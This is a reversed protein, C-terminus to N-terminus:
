FTIVQKPQRGLKGLAKDLAVPFEEFPVLETEYKLKGDRALGLLYDIMERCEKVKGMSLWSQLWFGRLALDKFIFSTTSVTIPKKSMGGYTVMTGGERLYKLVLSAANGGVCNFGLAPEPLNGLLSKVNKVNLQSESFVEDAGLAKLQERAEDSGARDRILNITSIGRLRALQIVCQGVISTAGNQVVSDGSNLNVFDELMRLATLPNVTITAAYEMPCEKDIKHWVSEEKVVYTQWTGSSPPSPIVWDGPSFGNVNSGVAYVEGVGEYGGVAPVPPRVPYVGEIRNIDSPNIPAAIMKVCVDNEKVEVPPLNVLRTVSDPSGHEEYVIAKSPPSMITSFSKICLTPTEGRRISRFNATSSFKLARGVVSEMLAAM